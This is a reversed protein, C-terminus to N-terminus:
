PPTEMVHQACIRGAAQNVPVTEKHAFYAERPSAALEPVITEDTQCSQRTGDGFSLARFLRRIDRKRTESTIIFVQNQGDDMECVINFKEYLAQADLGRAIIRLSDTEANPIGELRTRARLKQIYIINKELRERGRGQMYSRAADMCALLVFSPSSTQFMRLANELRLTEEENLGNTLLAATQNPSPLTKHFSNIVIHACSVASDPLLDSYHFHAGHAEDVILKLNYERVVKAIPELDMAVGYYTPRTICIGKVNAHASLLAHLAEETINGTIGFTEIKSGRIFLPKVGSVILASIVSHHCNRDVIVADGQAFLATFAALIGCNAGNVLFYARESGCASALADQAVRLYGTSVFLDDTQSLETVDYPYFGTLRREGKLPRGQHGPMHLRVPRNRIYKDIGPLVFKKSM